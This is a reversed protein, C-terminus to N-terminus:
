FMTIIFDFMIIKFVLELDDRFSLRVYISWPLVNLTVTRMKIIMGCCLMYQIFVSQGEHILDWRVARESVLVVDCCEM